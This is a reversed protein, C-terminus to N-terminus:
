VQKAQIESERFTREHAEGAEDTYAVKFCPEDDVIVVEVVEGEIPKINQVVKDGKKFELPM